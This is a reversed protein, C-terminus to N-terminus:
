DLKANRRYLWFVFVIFFIVSIFQAKIRQRIYHLHEFQPEQVM